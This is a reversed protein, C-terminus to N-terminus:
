FGRAWGDLVDLQNEIYDLGHTVGLAIASELYEEARAIGEAVAAPDSSDLRTLDEIFDLQFAAVDDTSWEISGRDVVVCSAKTTLTSDDFAVDTLGGASRESAIFASLREPVPQGFRRMVAAARDAYELWTSCGADGRPDFDEDVDDVGDLFALDIVEVDDSKQAIRFEDIVVFKTLNGSAGSGRRPSLTSPPVTAVGTATTAANQSGACRRLEAASTHQKTKTPCRSPNPCPMGIMM